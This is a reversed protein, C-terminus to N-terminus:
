KTIPMFQPDKTKRHEPQYTNSNEGETINATRDVWLKQTTGYTTGRNIHKRGSNHKGRGKRIM